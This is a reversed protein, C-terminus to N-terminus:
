FATSTEKKNRGYYKTKNNKFRDFRLLQFYKATIYVFIYFYILLQINHTIVTYIIYLHNHKIFIILTVVRSTFFINKTYPKRPRSSKCMNENM